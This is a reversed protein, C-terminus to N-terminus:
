HAGRDGGALAVVGRQEVRQVGLLVHPRFELQNALEDAGATENENVVGDPAAARDLARQRADGAGAVAHDTKPGCLAAGGLVITEPERDDLVAPATVPSM